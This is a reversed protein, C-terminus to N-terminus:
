SPAPGRGALVHRYFGALDDAVDDEDPWGAAQQLGADALRHRAGPDDALDRVAVAAADADDPDILVAAQGVLEPIGGVGTAVIPVGARMAEQAVLARAEWRSPL